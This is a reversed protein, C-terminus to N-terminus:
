RRHVVHLLHDTWAADNADLPPVPDNHYNIRRAYRGNEYALDLLPQLALTLKPDDRRLPVHIEPLKDQLHIPQLYVAGPDAPVRVTARYLSARKTTGHPRLLAKWDGARVLDIEIFNVGSAVLGARKSRFAHLGEGRKNTPSVFEIVAVLRETGADIIKIFRETIPEVQALLRYPLSIATDEVSEDIFLPLEIPPEFIRVDPALLRDESDGEVAIREEASAILDAPLQRNLADRAGSVLSTHVDLWHPELYPDMGPFPSPM